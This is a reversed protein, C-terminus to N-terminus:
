EADGAVQVCQDVVTLQVDRFRCRMAFGNDFRVDVYVWGSQQGERQITFNESLQEGHAVLWDVVSETVDLRRIKPELWPHEEYLGARVLEGVWSSLRESFDDCYVVRDGVTVCRLVLGNEFVVDIYASYWTSTDSSFSVFYTKYEDSLRDLYPTLSRLSARQSDATLDEIQTGSLALRLGRGVVEQPYRLPQNMFGNVTLAPFFAVPVAVLLALWSSLTMRGDPSSRDWAMNMGVTQFYGVATGLIVSVFVMLVTRTAAATDYSFIIENWFRRDAFWIFLNAGEFPIHAAIVALLGAVVAWIVVPIIVTPTLAALWGALGGIVVALPLGLVLKSWPMAAGNQALVWADFGWSFLAYSLGFFLGYGMGAQLLLRRTGRDEGPLETFRYASKKSM